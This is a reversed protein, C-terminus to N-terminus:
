DLDSRRRTSGASMPLRGMTWSVAVCALAAFLWNFTAHSAGPVLSALARLSAGGGSVVAVVLALAFALVLGGVLRREFRADLEAQAAVTRALRVAFDVPLAPAPATRLADVVARYGAASPDTPARGARADRLASEQMLWEHEDHNM